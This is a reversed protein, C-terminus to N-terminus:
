GQYNGHAALVINYIVNAAVMTTTLMGFVIAAKTSNFWRMRNLKPFAEFAWRPAEDDEISQVPALHPPSIARATADPVAGGGSADDGDRAALASPEDEMDEQPSPLAPSTRYREMSSRLGYASTHSPASLSSQEVGSTVSRSYELSPRRVTTAADIRINSMSSHSAHAPSHTPSAPDEDGAAKADRRSPSSTGPFSSRQHPVAFSTTTMLATKEDETVEIASTPRSAKSISLNHPVHATSSEGVKEGYYRHVSPSRILRIVNDSWSDTMLDDAAPLTLKEISDTPSSPREETQSPRPSAPQYRISVTSLRSPELPHLQFEDHEPPLNYSVRSFGLNCHCM